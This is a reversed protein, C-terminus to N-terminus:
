GDKGSEFVIRMKVMAGMAREMTQTDRECDPRNALCSGRGEGGNRWEGQLFPPRSRYVKERADVGAVRARGRMVWRLVNETDKRTRAALECQMCRMPRQSPTMSLILPSKSGPWSGSDKIAAWEGRGARRRRSAADGIEGALRQRDAESSYRNSCRRATGASVQRFSSFGSAPQVPSRQCVTVDAGVFTERCDSGGLCGEEQPLWGEARRRGRNCRAASSPDRDHLTTVKGAKPVSARAAFSETPAHRYLLIMIVKPAAARDGIVCGAIRHNGEESVVGRIWM